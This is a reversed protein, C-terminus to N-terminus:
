KELSQKLDKEKAYLETDHTYDRMQEHVEGLLQRVNQIQMNVKPFETENLLKMAQKMKKLKHWIKKMPPGREPETWVSKVVNMFEGHNALHNLFRFPRADKGQHKEFTICLLSHDSFFPDIVIVELHPWTNTWAPNVLAREIRSHIHSNTWTYYRGVSSM